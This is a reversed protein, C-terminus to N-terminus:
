IKRRWSLNFLHQTDSSGPRHWFLQRFHFHSVSYMQFKLTFVIFSSLKSSFIKLTIIQSKLRIFM